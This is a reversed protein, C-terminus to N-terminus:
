KREGSKRGFLRITQQEVVAAEILFMVEYGHLDNILLYLKGERCTCGKNFNEKMWEKAYIKHFKMMRYEDNQVKKKLLSLFLPIATCQQLHWHHGTARPPPANSCCPIIWSFSVHIYISWHRMESIGCQRVLFSSPKSINFIQIPLYVSARCNNARDTVPLLDQSSNKWRPRETHHKCMRGLATCNEGPQGATTGIIPELSGAIRYLLLSPQISRHM